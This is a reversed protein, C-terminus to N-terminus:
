SAKKRYPFSLHHLDHYDALEILLDRELSAAMNTGTYAGGSWRNNTSASRARALLWKRCAEVEAGRLLDEAVETLYYTRITTRAEAIADDLIGPVDNISRRGGLPTIEGATSPDTGPPARKTSVWEGGKAIMDNDAAVHRGHECALEASEAYHVLQLLRGDKTAFRTIWLTEKM